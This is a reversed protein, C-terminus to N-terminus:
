GRGKQIPRCARCYRRGQYIYTNAATFEHGRLCATKAKNITALATPARDLNVAQPVPELHGPNVCVPNRCLHDVNFGDPVDVGHIKLSARTAHQTRGDYWFMGYGAQDLAGTFTWCPTGNHWRRVNWRVYGMLRPASAKTM